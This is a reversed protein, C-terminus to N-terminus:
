NAATGTILTGRIDLVELTKVEPELSPRTGSFVEDVVAHIRNDFARACSDISEWADLFRLGGDDRRVCLHM